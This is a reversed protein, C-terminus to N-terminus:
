KTIKEQSICPLKVKKEAKIRILKVPKQFYVFNM